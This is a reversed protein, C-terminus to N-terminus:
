RRPRSSCCGSGAPSSGRTTCRPWRWRPASWRPPTCTTAAPTPSAPSRAAGPDDTRDHIPLADMDARLAVVPGGDGLEAVPGTRPLRTVRWGAQEVRTPALESTRSEAWSLEPHAHLDRRLEVLEDDYKDVVAAILQSTSPPM